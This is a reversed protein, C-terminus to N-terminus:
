NDDLCSEIQELQRILHEGQPLNILGKRSMWARTKLLNRQYKLRLKQKKTQFFKKKIKELWENLPVIMM